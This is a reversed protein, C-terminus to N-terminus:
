EDPRDKKTPSFAAAILHACLRVGLANVMFQAKGARDLKGFALLALRVDENM